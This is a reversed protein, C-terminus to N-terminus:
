QFMASRMINMNDVPNICMVPIKAENVVIQQERSGLFFESIEREEDTMIIILDAWIGAAYDIIERYFPKEGESQIVKYNCNHKTLYQEAFLINNKIQNSVFEDSDTEALIHFNCKFIKNLHIAWALKQRSERTFSFPLVIDKYGEERMRRNQVVLIPVEEVHNIIKFAPTGFLREFGSMGHTGSVIVTAKLEKSLRGIIDYLDGTEVVTRVEIGTKAFTDDALNMLRAKAEEEQLVVQSEPEFFGRDLVHLLTIHKDFLRALVAAHEIVIETLATFDVGVLITETLEPAKM